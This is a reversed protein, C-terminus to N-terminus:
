RDEAPELAATRFSIQRSGTISTSPGRCRTGAAVAAVPQRQALQDELAVRGAGLPVSRPAACRRRRRDLRALRDAQDAALPLPLLVRSLSCRRRAAARVLARDLTLPPTAGSISSVPPKTPSRVARSLMQSVAPRCPRLWALLDGLPEVLDDVEGLDAVEEVRREPVEGAAHLHPEAERHDRGEVLRDDQDVLHERDAVLAEALLAVLPHLWSTSSPGCATGPRACRSRGAGTRCGRARGACPPWTRASPGISSAARRVVVVSMPLVFHGLGAREDDSTPSGRGAPRRSRAPRAGSPRGSSRPDHQRRWRELRPPSAPATAPAAPTPALQEGARRRRGAAQGQDVRRRQGQGRTRRRPRRGASRAARHQAVPSPRTTASRSSPGRPGPRESPAEAPRQRVGGPRRQGRQPSARAAQPRGPGRARRGPRSGARADTCLRRGPSRRQGGLVGDVLGGQPQAPGRAASSPKRDVNRTRGSDRRSVRRATAGRAQPGVDTM